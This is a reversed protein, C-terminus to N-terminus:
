IKWINKKGRESSKTVLNPKHLWPSGNSDADNYNKVELFIETIYVLIKAAMFWVEGCNVRNRALQYDRFAQAQTEPHEEEEDFDELMPNLTELISPPDPISSSPIVLEENTEPEQTLELSPKSTVEVEVPISSPTRVSPSSDSVPKDKLYILQIM